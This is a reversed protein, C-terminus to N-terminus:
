SFIKGGSILFLLYVAFVLLFFIGNTVYYKVCGKDKKIGQALAAFFISLVGSVFAAYVLYPFYASLEDIHQAANWVKELLGYGWASFNRWGEMTWVLGITAITVVVVIVTHITGVVFVGLFTAIPILYYLLTSTGAVITLILFFRALKKLWSAKARGKNNKSLPEPKLPTPSLPESQKTEQEDMQCYSAMPLLFLLGRREQACERM